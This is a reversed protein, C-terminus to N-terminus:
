YGEDLGRVKVEYKDTIYYYNDDSTPIPDRLIDYGDPYKNKYWGKAVGKHTPVDYNWQYTNGVFAFSGRHELKWEGLNGGLKLEPLECTSVISDTNWLLVNDKLVGNGNEYILSEIYENSQCIVMARIFPNVRQLYGISYNLVGKAKMKVPVTTATAKRKYWVDVFRKFPSERLKFVYQAYQGARRLKWQGENTTDFGIEGEKVYDWIRPHESTDPIPQKLFYPWASNLDYGYCNEYRHGSKNKNFSADAATTGITRLDFNGNDDKDLFQNYFDDKRLDPLDRVYKKMIRYAEGGDVYQTPDENDLRFIYTTTQKGRKFTLYVKTRDIDLYANFMNGPKYSGKVIHYYKRAEELAASFETYDCYVRKERRM